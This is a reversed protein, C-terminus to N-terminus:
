PESGGSLANSIRTADISWLEATSNGVSHIAGFIALLILALMMAYEVTTPGAEDNLFWCIQQYKM